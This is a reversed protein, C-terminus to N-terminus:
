RKAVHLFLASGGPPGVWYDGDSCGPGGRRRREDTTIAPCQVLPGVEVESGMQGFIQSVRDYVREPLDSIRHTRAMCNSTSSSLSRRSRSLHPCHGRSTQERADGQPRRVSLTRKDAPVSRHPRGEVRPGRRSPTVGGRCCLPNM